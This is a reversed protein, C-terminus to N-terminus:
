RRSQGGSRPLLAPRPARTAGRGAIELPGPWNPSSGRPTSPAWGPRWTTVRGPRFGSRSAAHPEPHVVGHQERPSTSWARARARGGPRVAGPQDPRPLPGAVQDALAVIGAFLPTSESTGCVVYWGAPQAPSARTTIVLGSCAGSMAIDPVGAGPASSARWATRTCRGPSSWRSAAAPPWPTPAPDGFFVQNLAHQLHREVGPGARDPPRRRQAAAPHRGGRHGAPRQGALRRGTRTTAPLTGAADSYDTAGADGTAALVTVGHLLANVYASRLPLISRASPFTQETAGFSQSIVDGLHHNIVYNEAQVIQPFGTTGETEAVPTEVLLINAGPAMAHAWECTSRPRGPGAPGHPNTPDYPPVPGAPQIIKFSPPAPLGFQRDFTALDAPDDPSGFSDVIVITQGKGTIGRAFLPAENYAAQFQAPQYCPVAFAAVCQAQSPPQTASAFRRKLMPAIKIAALPHAAPRASAAVTVGAASLTSMAAGAVIATLM